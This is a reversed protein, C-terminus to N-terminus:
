IGLGATPNDIWQKLHKFFRPDEICSTFFNPNSSFLTDRPIQLDLVHFLHSLFIVLYVVEFNVSKLKSNHPNYLSYIHLMCPFYIHICCRKSLM